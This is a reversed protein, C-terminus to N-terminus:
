LFEPARAGGNFSLFYLKVTRFICNNQMLIIIIIFLENFILRM